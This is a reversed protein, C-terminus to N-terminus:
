WPRNGPQSFDESTMFKSPKDDAKHETGTAGALDKRDQKNKTDKPNPVGSNM